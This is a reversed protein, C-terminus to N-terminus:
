SRKSLNRGTEVAVSNSTGAATYTTLNRSVASIEKAREIASRMGSIASHTLLQNRVLKERLAQFQAIDSVPLQSVEHLLSAKAEAFAEIDRRHLCGGTKQGSASRATACCSCGPGFRQSTDFTVDRAGLQTSKEIFVAHRYIIPLRHENNLPAAFM